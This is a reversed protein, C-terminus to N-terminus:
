EEDKKPLLVGGVGRRFRDLTSYIKELINHYTQDKEYLLISFNMNLGNLRIIQGFEDTLTFHFVERTNSVLPHSNAEVDICSYTINSFDVNNLYIEQLVNSKPNNRCIDSHLYLCDERQLKIVNTSTLSDAVFENTSGPIFGLQEYCYDGFIFKPQSTAFNVTFTFKGTDKQNKVFPAYNYKWNHGMNTSANDLLDKLTNALGILNYNGEPIIITEQLGDEELIFSNRGDIFLYYSKPISAQLLCIHTFRNDPPLEIRYSFDEDTGTLRLASNIHYIAKSKM